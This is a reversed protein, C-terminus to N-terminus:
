ARELLSFFFFLSPKNHDSTFDDFAIFSTPSTKIKRDKIKEPSQIGDNKRKNESLLSFFFMFIPISMKRM